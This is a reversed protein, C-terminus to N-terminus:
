KVIRPRVPHYSVEVTLQFSSFKSRLDNLHKCLQKTKTAIPLVSNKVEKSAMLQTVSEVRLSVQKSAM